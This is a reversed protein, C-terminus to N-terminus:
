YDVQASTVYNFAINVGVDLVFKAAFNLFEGDPDAYKCPNNNVYLYRNFSPNSEFFDM